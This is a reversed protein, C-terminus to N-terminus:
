EKEDLLDKKMYNPLGDISTSVASGKFGGYAGKTNVDPTNLNGRPSMAKHISDREMEAIMDGVTKDVVGVPKMDSTVIKKIDGPENTIFTRVYNVIEFPVVMVSFPSQKQGSSTFGYASDFTNKRVEVLNDGQVFLWHGEIGSYLMAGEDSLGIQIPRGKYEELKALVDAKNM